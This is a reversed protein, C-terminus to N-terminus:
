ELKAHEKSKGLIVDCAFIKVQYGKKVLECAFDFHMTGGPLDPSIAYHNIMWIKPM